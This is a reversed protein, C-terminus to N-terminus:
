VTLLELYLLIAKGTITIDPHVLGGAVVQVTKNELGQAGQFTQGNVNSSHIFRFVDEETLKELFLGANLTSGDASYRQVLTYLNDDAVALDKFFGFTTWKTWGVVTYETNVGLVAITGDDNLAFVFNNNTNDYNKVFALNDAGTLIDHHVLNYNKASYADTNFNYV